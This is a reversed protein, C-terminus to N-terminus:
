GIHPRHINGFYVASSNNGHFLLAYSLRNARPFQFMMWTHIRAMKFLYPLSLSIYATIAHSINRYKALQDFIPTSMWTGTLILAPGVYTKWFIVSTLKM